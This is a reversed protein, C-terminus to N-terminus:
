DLEKCLESYKSKNMMKKQVKEIKDDGGIARPLGGYSMQESEYSGIAELSPEIFNDSNSSFDKIFGYVIGSENGNQYSIDVNINPMSRYNPKNSSKFVVAKGDISEIPKAFYEAVKDKPRMNDVYSYSEMMTDYTGKSNSNELDNFEDINRIDTGHRPLIDFFGQTGDKPLEGKSERIFYSGIEEGNDVKNVNYLNLDDQITTISNKSIDYDMTKKDKNFHEIALERFEENDPMDYMWTAYEIHSSIGSFYGLNLEKMRQIKATSSIDKWKTHNELGDINLLEARTTDKSINAFIGAYPYAATVDSDSTLISVSDALLPIQEDFLIARAKYKPWPPLTVTWGRRGIGDGFNESSTDSGIVRNNNLAYFHFDDMVYKSSSSFNEFSSRNVFIPLTSALDLSKWELMLCLMVDWINYCAYEVPFKSSCTKHWQLPSLSDLEKLNNFEMKHLGGEKSLVNNLSYGGLIQKDTIRLYSYTAMQDIIFFKAPSRFLHWRRDNPIRKKVGGATTILNPVIKETYEIYEEPLNPDTVRSAFCEDRKDYDKKIATIDYHVNWATLFDSGQDHVNSWFSDLSEIVDKKFDFNFIFKKDKMFKKPLKDKFEKLLHNKITDVDKPFVQLGSISNNVFTNIEITNNDEPLFRMNTVISTELHEMNTEIDFFTTTFLDKNGKSYDEDYKHKILETIHIDTGYVYPSRNLARMNKQGGYGLGKLHKLGEKALDSQTSTYTKLRDLVEHEKKQKHDRYVEKTIYFKRKPEEMIRLTNENTGDEYKILEKVCVADKRKDNAQIHYSHKFQRSIIKKEM